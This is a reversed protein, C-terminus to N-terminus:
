RSLDLALRHLEVPFSKNEKLCRDLPRTVIQGNKVATFLGSKGEGLLDVAASGMRSGFLRDVAGPSGGRQIHGLVTVRTEANIKQRIQKNLEFVDAAGEAVVII